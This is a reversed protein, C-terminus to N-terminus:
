GATDRLLPKGERDAMLRFLEALGETFAEPEDARSSILDSMLRKPLLAVDEAFLCFLM